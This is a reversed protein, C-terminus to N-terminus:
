QVIGELRNSSNLNKSKRANISSRLSIIMCAQCSWCHKLRHHRRARPKTAELVMSELNLFGEPMRSDHELGCFVPDQSCNLACRKIDTFGTAKLAATLTIEDYIFMHGWARFFNNIVFMELNEAPGSNLWHEYSWALYANQLDTKKPDHLAKLFAFDPTVLRLKGDRALVRFSERLMNLGAAYPLHEIMHESYVYEFAGDPVPFERAVNVYAVGRRCFLDTNLWGDLMHNGSGLHLKRPGDSSLYRKIIRQNAPRLRSLEQAVRRVSLITKEYATPV